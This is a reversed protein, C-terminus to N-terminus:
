SEALEILRQALHRREALNGALALATTYHARAEALRGSRRLLEAKAAHLLHYRELARSREIREIWALGDAVSGSMALAVAANLEVVPTPLHRLLACYLGAIQLWDTDAPTPATAHVAAIAAQLQYPGPRRLLLAGDVLARAEDIAARNWKGRDQEELVVLAGAADIRADQRSDHLLMLALLAAAEPERPMLAHVLRGLRLAEACLDTRMLDGGEGALYGENFVLYIAALVAALRPGLADAPPLDFTIGAAAIKRRARALKQATTAEPEVFARAIERTTLGCLCRLVLAVQAPQAIAPHCCMFMLQLREDPLPAASDEGPTRSASELTALLADDLAIQPRSRKLRDLASRRAVTAVWGAPNDPVGDRPWHQLAKAYADQLADEALDLSRFQRLLGALLRGGDRRHLVDLARALM